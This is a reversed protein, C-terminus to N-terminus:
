EDVLSNYVIEIEKPMSVDSYGAPIENPRKFDIVLYIVDDVTNNHLSHIKSADYILSDGDIMKKSEHDVWIGCEKIEYCYSNFCRVFRLTDNTMTAYGKHELFQSNPALKVFYINKISDKITDKNTDKNTDNIADNIADNVDNIENIMNIYDLLNSFIAQNKKNYKFNLKIPLIEINGSIIKQDPWKEWAIEEVTIREKIAEIKKFEDDDLNESDAINLRVLTELFLNDKKSFDELKPFKDISYFNRRNPSFIILFIIVIFVIICIGITIATSQSIM